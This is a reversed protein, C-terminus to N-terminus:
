SINFFELSNQYIKELAQTEGWQRHQCIYSATHPLYFPANEKGRHPAPTLFPADTELLLKEIPVIDLVERVNHANKFTVIGNFGIYFGAELAKEALWKESTFSHLVLPKKLQSSFNSLINWTDEEAERTHIIVPLEYDIAIQMQAEFAQHQKDKPSYDYHYDLGMEGLAVVQKSSQINKKIHAEVEDSYEKADHPHIGQSCYVNEPYDHAIKLVKDLNSSETAISVMKDVGMELTKNIIELTPAQKLYDLHCHTDFYRM